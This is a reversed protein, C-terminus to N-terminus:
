PDQSVIYGVLLLDYQLMPSCIADRHLYSEVVLPVSRPHLGVNWLALFRIEPWFTSHEQAIGTRHM